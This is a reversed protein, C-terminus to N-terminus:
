MWPTKLSRWRTSTYTERHRVPLEHTGHLSPCQSCTWDDRVHCESCKGFAENGGRWWENQFFSQKPCLSVLSSLNLTKKPHINYTCSNTLFLVFWLLWDDACPLSFIEKKKRIEPFGWNECQGQIHTLWVEFLIYLIDGGSLKPLEFNM